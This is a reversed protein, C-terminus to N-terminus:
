KLWRVPLASFHVNQKGRTSTPMGVTQESVQTAPQAVDAQHEVVRVPHQFGGRRGVVCAQVGRLALHEEVRVVRVHLARGCAAPM